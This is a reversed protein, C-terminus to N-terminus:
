KIMAQCYIVLSSYAAVSIGGQCKYGQKLYSNVRIQLGDITHEQIIIYHM